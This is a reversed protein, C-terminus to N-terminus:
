LLNKKNCTNYRYLTEALFSVLFAVVFVLLSNSKLLYICLFVISLYVIASFLMSHLVPKDYGYVLLCNRGLLAGVIYVPLCLALLRTIQVAEQMEEGGLIRVLLGAVGQISFMMVVAALCSLAIIKKLFQKDKKLSMRPFITQSILDLFSIAINIIKSALDYYAVEKFSFFHKILVINFNGKLTNAAYALAMIYSEKIYLMVEKMAPMLFRIGNRKLIFVAVAGSILAGGGNILPVLLYDDSSKILVFILVLFVIKNGLTLVTIYKMKEIGQFYWVPFLFEYLCTWLSFYFLWHFEKPQASLQMTTVIILVSILFLTGKIFFVNSAIASVKEPENRNISIARTATINLGFNVLLVLYNTITQAYVIKGYVDAGLVGILYPYTVLPLVMNLVQLVALYGFNSIITLHPQLRAKLHLWKKNM